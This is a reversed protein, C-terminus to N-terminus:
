YTGEEKAMDRVCRINYRVTDPSIDSTGYKFDVFWNSNKQKVSATSTWYKVPKIHKIKQIASPNTVDYDVLSLLEDYKPVRWDKRNALDLRKCYLKLELRNLKKESNLSQDQWMLNDQIFIM